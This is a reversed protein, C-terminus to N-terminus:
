NDINNNRRLTNSLMVYSHTNKNSGSSLVKFQKQMSNCILMSSSATHYQWHWYSRILIHCPLLFYNVADEDNNDADDDDTVPRSPYLLLFPQTTFLLILYQRVLLLLHM